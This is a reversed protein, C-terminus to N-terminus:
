KTRVKSTKTKTETKTKSTTKPKSSKKVPEPEPEPESEEDDDEEEEDEEDEEDEEESENGADVDSEADAEVESEADAESEAEAEAEDDPQEENDSAVDEKTVVKEEVENQEEDDDVFAFQSFENRIRISGSSERPEIELQLAKLTVGYKRNGSDDKNKAAWLKNAMLVMRVKCGFNLHDGLETVTNVKVPTRVDKGDEGKTKVFVLTKIQGSPYETDLKVKFYKFREKQEESTKKDTTDEEVILAMDDQQPERVIPQYKYLKEYKGLVATKRKEITNDLSVLMAKQINCSEQEPDLPVKIFSRQDDSKYFEGLRPLGYQTVQITTTQFVFNTEMTPSYQYRPFSIMQSKSRESNKELETFSLKKPDFKHCVIPQVTNKRESM